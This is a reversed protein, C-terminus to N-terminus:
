LVSGSSFVLAVVGCIGAIMGAIASMGGAVVKVFTAGKGRTQINRKSRRTRKTTTIAADKQNTAVSAACPQEHDKTVVVESAHALHSQQTSILFLLICWLFKTRNM